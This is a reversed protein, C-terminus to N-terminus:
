SGLAQIEDDDLILFIWRTTQAHVFGEWCGDLERGDKVVASDIRAMKTIMRCYIALLFCSFMEGAELAACAQECAALAARVHWERMGPVDLWSREEGVAEQMWDGDRSYAFFEASFAFELRAIRSRRPGLPLAKFQAATLGIRELRERIFNNRALLLNKWLNLSSTWYTTGVTENMCQQVVSVPTNWQIRSSQSM